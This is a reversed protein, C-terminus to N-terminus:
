YFVICRCSTPFALHMSDAPYLVPLFSAPFALHLSGASCQRSPRGPGPAPGGLTACGVTRRSDEALCPTTGVPLAHYRSRSGLVLATVALGRACVCLCVLACVVPALAIQSPRPVADCDSFCRTGGCRRICCWPTIFRRDCEHTHPAVVCGGATCNFCQSPDSLGTRDGSFTGQPCPVPSATGEPCVHGRTCVQGLGLAVCRSRRPVPACCSVMSRSLPLSPPPPRALFSHAM